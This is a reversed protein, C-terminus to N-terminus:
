CAREEQRDHASRTSFTHSPGFPAPLDASRWFCAIPAVLEKERAFELEADDSAEAVARTGSSRNVPWHHLGPRCQNSRPPAPQKRM